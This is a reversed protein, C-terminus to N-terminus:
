AKRSKKKKVKPKCPTKKGTGNAMKMPKKGKKAAMIFGKTKFILM